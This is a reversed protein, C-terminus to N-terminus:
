APHSAARTPQWVAARGTIDIDPFQAPHLLRGLLEIGDVVRPGSRNFYASGDVVFARGAAIARPAVALLRERYRDAEERARDLGYGCPLVLVVDPDAGDLAGWEVQQSRRGPSGFLSRGGAAEIMEPGWHGPVFVPDLWELAMVNAHPHPDCAVRERVDDIRKRLQSVLARGRHSVGAAEAVREVTGLIEEISHADLSVVAPDGGVALAAQRALSTPVACVECVDQTLLLDPAAERLADVDLQYVSGHARMADRVAVDIQASTLTAPDFRPRSVRPRDLIAAPFDCEHSIAILQDALDLACVIETASALLSAIRVLSLHGAGM